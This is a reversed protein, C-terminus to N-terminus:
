TSSTSPFYQFPQCQDVFILDAFFYIDSAVGGVKELKGNKQLLDALTVLDVPKNQLTIEHMHSFITKHSDVLFDDEKLGAIIDMQVVQDLLICALVSQEAELNYPMNNAM